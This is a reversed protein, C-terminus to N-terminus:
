SEYKAYYISGDENVREEWCAPLDIEDFDSDSDTDVNAKSLYSM